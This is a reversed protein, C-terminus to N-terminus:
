PNLAKQSTGHHLQEGDPIWVRLAWLEPSPFCSNGLHALPFSSLCHQEGEEKPEAHVHKVRSAVAGHLSWPNLSCASSPPYHEYPIRQFSSDILVEWLWEWERSPQPEQTTHSTIPRTYKMATHESRCRWQQLITEGTQCLTMCYGTHTPWMSLLGKCLPALWFGAAPFPSGMALIHQNWDLYTATGEVSSLIWHSWNVMLYSTIGKSPHHWTPHGAKTDKAPLNSM